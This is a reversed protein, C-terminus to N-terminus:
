KTITLHIYTTCWPLGRPTDIYTSNYCHANRTSVFRSPYLDGMMGKEMM